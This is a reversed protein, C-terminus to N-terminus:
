VFITFFNLISMGFNLRIKKPRGTLIQLGSIVVTVLGVHAEDM